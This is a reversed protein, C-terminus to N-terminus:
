VMGRWPGKVLQSFGAFFIVGTLGAFLFIIVMIGYNTEAGAIASINWMVAISRIYSSWFAGAFAGYIVAADSPIKTLLVGIVAGAIAGIGIILLSSGGLFRWWINSGGDAPDNLEDADYNYESATSIGMNFIGLDSVLSISVNFILFFMLIEYAKM